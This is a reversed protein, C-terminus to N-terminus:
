IDIFVYKMSSKSEQRFKQYMFEELGLSAVTRNSSLAEQAVNAGEVQSQGVGGNM